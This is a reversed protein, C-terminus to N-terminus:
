AQRREVEDGVPFAFRMSVRSAFEKRLAGMNM